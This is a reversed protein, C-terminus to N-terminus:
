KCFLIIFAVIFIFIAVCLSFLAIKKDKNWFQITQILMLVGILPEYVNIAKEWVGALQMAALVIVSISCIIGLVSVVKEYPKKENWAEKVRNM